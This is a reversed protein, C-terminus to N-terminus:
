CRELVAGCENSNAGNWCLEVNSNADNWCLEVNSNADNWCLEVSMATLMTGACSWMATLM